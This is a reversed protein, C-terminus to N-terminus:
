VVRATIPQISCMSSPLSLALVTLRCQGFPYEIGYPTMSCLLVPPLQGPPLHQKPVPHVGTPLHHAIARHMVQICM